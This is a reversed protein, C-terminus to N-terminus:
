ERYCAACMSLPFFCALMHSFFRLDAHVFTFGVVFDVPIEVPLNVFFEIDSGLDTVLPGAVLIAGRQNMDIAVPMFLAPAIPLEAVSGVTEGVRQSAEADLAAVTHRHEQRVPRFRQDRVDRNILGTRYQHRQQGQEPRHRDLIAQVAAATPDHNGVAFVQGLHELNALPQGLEFGDDHDTAGIVRVRDVEVLAECALAPMEINRFRAVVVGRQDNVGRTGGARGLPRQVTVPQQRGLDVIETKVEVKERLGAVQQPGM